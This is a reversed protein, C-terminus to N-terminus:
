ASPWLPWSQIMQRKKVSFCIFGLKAPRPVFAFVGGSGAQFDFSNKQM